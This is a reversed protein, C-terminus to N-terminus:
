LFFCIETRSKQLANMIRAWLIHKHALSSYRPRKPPIRCLFNQGFDASLSRLVFMHFALFLAAVVLFISMGDGDHKKEEEEERKDRERM